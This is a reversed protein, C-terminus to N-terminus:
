SKRTHNWRHDYNWMQFFHRFGVLTWDCFAKRVDFFGRGGDSSRTWDKTLRTQVAYMNGHTESTSFEFNWHDINGFENEFM